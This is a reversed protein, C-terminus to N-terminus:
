NVWTLMYNEEKVRGSEKLINIIKNYSDLDVLGMLHAYLHGSPVSGLDKITDAIAQVLKIYAAVQEKTM